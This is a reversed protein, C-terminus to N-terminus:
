VQEELYLIKWIQFLSLIIGQYEKEGRDFIHEGITQTTKPISITTLPNLRFAGEGIITVYSPLILQEIKCSEFAYDKITLTQDENEGIDNFVISNLNDCGKFAGVGITRLSRPFVVEQLITYPVTQSKNFDFYCTFVYDGISTVGEEIVIKRISEGSKFWPVNNPSLEGTLLAKIKRGSNHCNPMDGKGSITLVGNSLEWTLNQGFPKKKADINAAFLLSLSIAIIVRKM